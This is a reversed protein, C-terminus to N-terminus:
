AGETLAADDLGTEGLFEVVEPLDTVWRLFVSLRGPERALERPPYDFRQLTERNLYEILRIERADYDLMVMAVSLTVISKIPYVNFPPEPAPMLALEPVFFKTTLFPQTVSQPVWPTSRHSAVWECTM